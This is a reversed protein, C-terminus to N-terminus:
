NVLPVVKQGRYVHIYSLARSIMYACIGGLQRIWCIYFDVNQDSEEDIDMSQTQSCYPGPSDACVIFLFIFLYIFLVLTKHIQGIPMHRNLQKEDRESLEVVVLNSTYSVLGYCTKFIHNIQLNTQNYDINPLKAM